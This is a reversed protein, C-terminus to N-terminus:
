CRRLTQKLTQECPKTDIRTVIDTNHEPDVYPRQEPVLMGRTYTGETEVVIDHPEKEIHDDGVLTFMAAADYLLAGDVDLFRNINAHYAELMSRLDRGITADELDEIDAPRFMIDNCPDLPVLTTKIESEIVTAAADPDVYLNYEAVRNQNGPSTLAGGMSIIEQAQQMQAPYQDIATAINTLPGLTIITAGTAATSALAEIGNKEAPVPDIERDLGDLGDDGHVQATELARDLPRDCGAALPIDSREALALITGANKTTNELTANGAVTTIQEVTIDDHALAFLIALADDHGPDTDIAINM